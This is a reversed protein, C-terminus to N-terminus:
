ECGYRDCYRMKEETYADRKAALAPTKFRKVYLFCPPFSVPPEGGYVIELDGYVQILNQIDQQRNIVRCADTDTEVLDGKKCNEGFILDSLKM